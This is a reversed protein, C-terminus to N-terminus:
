DSNGEDKEGGTGYQKGVDELPIYNGNVIARDGGKIHPLMLVDRAEDVSYIGNNVYGQLIKSQTESDVRLIAKENFRYWFGDNIQKRTLIKYNIEEEYSKIHYLMTEVLFALQQTESNSYSSKEYNNLQNPKIGFASAIQLASYKRLEYFQADTLKMNIPVLKLGPPLPIVGNNKRVNSLYQNYKKTLKEIKPQDLDESYELAVASTLGNKSLNNAFEQGAKAGDISDKLMERVPKGMIGDFTSSTKFHMVDEQPFVYTEGSYKDTYQYYIEGKDSFVGKNDVLVSVNQSPMVWISHVGVEGGYKERKFYRRIWVYANGYHQRNAEVTSWFTTPTMIENPRIALVFTASDPDARIKGKETTQYYKLPMKGITESLLRLCTFYTVESIDRKNRTEIGLFELIKEDEAGVSVLNRFFNKINEFFGM